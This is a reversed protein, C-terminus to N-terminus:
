GSQESQKYYLAMKSLSAAGSSTNTMRIAIHTTHGLADWDPKNFTLGEGAGLHVVQALSNPNILFEVDWTGEAAMDFGFLDKYTGDKQATLFPTLFTPEYEGYEDGSTGGYLYLTDDTSRAYLQGNAIAFEGVVFGPEYWTWAAVKTESFFSYVFIREGIAMLFRGDKPEIASVANVVQEDTAGDQIYDRVVQDISVGVDAVQALESSQRARLSRIGTDALYFTDVGGYEEISKPSRTGTNKITQRLANLDDDNQMDWLQIVRRSFLALFNQYTECAVVDQSGGANNSATIFGAGIDSESNWGTATNVGSFYVVSGAPSYLKRKHTKIFTGTAAPNGTTGFYAVVPESDITSTLTIGFRDGTEPTGGVTIQNVQAVGAAATVGGATAGVVFTGAATNNIRMTNTTTVQVTLNNNAAGTANKTLIVTQGSPTAVWGHTGTNINVDTAILTATNINSTTWTVTGSLLQVGGVLLSTITGTGDGATVQFTFTSAVGTVANVNPTINVNTLTQDDVGGAMNAVFTSVDFPVGATAATVTIVALASTAVYSDDANILAALQAAMGTNSMAARMVGNTWAGVVEGDYFHYISADSFEAIVYLLGGFLDHSLIRTMPLGDPHQLRQYQVSGPLSLPAADSGFTYLTDAQEALGFTNVGFDGLDVFAKRKEIDGGRSIHCDIAEWLTGPPAAYIPRRRDVGGSFNEVLIYAM